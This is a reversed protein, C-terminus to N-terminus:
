HGNGFFNKMNDAMSKNMEQISKTLQVNFRTLFQEMLTNSMNNPSNNNYQQQLPPRFQNPNERGNTEGQQQQQQQTEDRHRHFNRREM